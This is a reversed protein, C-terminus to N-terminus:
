AYREQFVKLLEKNDKRIQIALRGQLPHPEIIDRPIVQAIRHTLGLRILAAHAVIVAEFDGNDLQALREGINGRIDKLVLDQRFRHLANKRKDSSTGVRAGLCLKALTLNGKSVLSEFPSLALTYAAIMLEAPMKGELDKASHVAADIKGEILAQEIEFTFFNSMGEQWLSSFKDKDGRTEILIIEMEIDPFNNQVEQAQKIALPSPRTGLRIKSRTFLNM